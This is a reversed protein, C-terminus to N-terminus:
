EPDPSLPLEDPANVRPKVRDLLKRFEQWSTAATMLLVVDRLHDKLKPHGHETTLYQFHKHKRRGRGVTPNRRQLEALVGPALRSYVIDNTYYAM